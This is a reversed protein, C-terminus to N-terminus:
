LSSQFKLKYLEVAAASSTSAAWSRRGIYGAQRLAFTSCSETSAGTRWARSSSWSPARAWPLVFECCIFIHKRRFSYQTTHKIHKVHTNFVNKILKFVNSRILSSRKRKSRKTFCIISCLPIICNLAKTLYYVHVFVLVYM